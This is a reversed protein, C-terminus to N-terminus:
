GGSGPFPDCGSEMNATPVPALAAHATDPRERPVLEALAQRARSQVYANNAQQALEAAKILLPHANEATGLRAHAEGLDTLIYAMGLTDGVAQAQQFASGFASTAAVLDAERVFIRALDCHAEAQGRRDDSQEYLMLARRLSEKASTLEDLHTQARGLNLWLNACTRRNAPRLAFGRECAAKAATPDGQIRCADSILAMVAAQGETDGLRSFIEASRCLHTEAERYDRLVLARYGLSHLLAAEGYSIGVAALAHAHTTHWLDFYGGAELATQPAVALEWCAEYLGAEAARQVMQSIRPLRAVFWETASGTIQPPADMPTWRATGGTLAREQPGHMATYAADTLALQAGFARNLEVRLEAPDGDAMARERAYALVLDHLRCHVYPFNLLGSTEPCADLLTTRFLFRPLLLPAM